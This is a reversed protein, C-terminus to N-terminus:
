GLGRYASQSTIEECLAVGFTFSKEPVSAVGKRKKQGGRKIQKTVRGGKEWRAMVDGSSVRESRCIATGSV